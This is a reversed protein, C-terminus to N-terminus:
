VDPIVGFECATKTPVSSGPAYVTNASELWSLASPCNVSWASSAGSLPEPPVPSPHLSAIGSVADVVADPSVNSTFSSM